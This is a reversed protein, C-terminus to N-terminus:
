AWGRGRRRPTSIGMCPKFMPKGLMGFPSRDGQTGAKCGDTSGSEDIVHCPTKAPNGRACGKNTRLGNPDISSMRDMRDMSRRTGGGGQRAQGYGSPPTPLHTERWGLAKGKSCLPPDPTWPIGTPRGEAFLPGVGPEEPGLHPCTLVSVRGKSVISPTPGWGSPPSLVHVSSTSFVHETSVNRHIKNRSPRHVSEFLFARPNHRDAIESIRYEVRLPRVM